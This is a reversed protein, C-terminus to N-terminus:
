ILPNNFRRPSTQKNKNESGKKTIIILMKPLEQIKKLMGEVIDEIKDLIKKMTNLNKAGNVRNEAGIAKM